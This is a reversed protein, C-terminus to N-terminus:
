LKISEHQSLPCYEGACSWLLELFQIFIKCPDRWSTNQRKSNTMESVDPVAGTRAWLYPPHPLWTHRTEYHIVPSLSQSMSSGMSWESRNSHIRYAKSKVGGKNVVMCSHWTSRGRRWRSCGLTSGLVMIESDHSTLFASVNSCVPRMTLCGASRLLWWM